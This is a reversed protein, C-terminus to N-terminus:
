FAAYMPLGAGDASLTALYADCQMVGWIVVVIILWEGLFGVRCVARQLASDLSRPMFHAIYGVAMILLAPLSADVVGRMDSWAFNHAIRGLIDGVFAMDSATFLLWGFAVVIFTLLTSPIRVLPHMDEGKPKAWPVVGLWVKHLALAVGHLTGWALFPLGVGHWLGGLIMTVLLNFYTRVRGRRNGGLSIYLYDRLWSSLSIHWRRWFETITASRYPSDFNDPLRFGMLLAVGVALDSYGSFDCYIQLTFGLIALLAVVGGDGFEGDFAPAVFLIGITRAILSYKIMGGAILTVARALEERSVNLERSKIQPIFESAVVLPGLFMKPFFSLMFLYDTFRNLPEIKGRSIDVVYAISQFVFFSVGAPIIAGQWDVTGSDYMTSLWEAILGGAKFYILIALNIVVSLTVWWRTSGGRARSRAVRRGIVYDSLAVAVLLLVYWGSLKYYFYLSFLAVYLTRLWVVRRVALYGIGFILFMFLFLGGALTMPSAADYQVLGLIQPWLAEFQEVARAIYGELWEM